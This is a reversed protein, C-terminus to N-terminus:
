LILLMLMRKRNRRRINEISDIDGIYDIDDMYDILIEDNNVDSEDKVLAM